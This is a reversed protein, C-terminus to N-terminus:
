SPKNRVDMRRGNVRGYLWKLCLTSLGMVAASGVFLAVRGKEGFEDFIPYPYFGNHAYCQEVWFWYALAICSSLGFAPIVSVSYPPSFFLLDLTLAIAPVAHFSADTKLDLVPAWEPLVLRQDITRLSWYLLSILVEMPASAVSLTNKLTFLRSSLTLDALLGVTFTLAALFLGIITLYQM